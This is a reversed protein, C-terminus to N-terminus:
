FRRSREHYIHGRHLQLCITSLRRTNHSHNEICAVVTVRHALSSRIVTCWYGGFIRLLVIVQFYVTFSLRHFLFKCAYIAYGLTYSRLKCVIIYRCRRSRGFGQFWQPLSSSSLVVILRRHRVQKRPRLQGKWEKLEAQYQEELERMKQTEHELLM